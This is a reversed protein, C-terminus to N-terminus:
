GPPWNLDRGGIVHIHLWRVTQGGQEGENIVLRYGNESLGESKAVNNAVLLLHGLIQKDEPKVAGIGALPKKPIVLVHKPAVPRKNQQKNPIYIHIHHSM